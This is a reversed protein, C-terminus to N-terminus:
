FNVGSSPMDSTAGQRNCVDTAVVTTREAARGTRFIPSMHRCTEQSAARASTKSRGLPGLTPADTANAFCAQRECNRPCGRSGARVGFRTGKEDVAHKRTCHFGDRAADACLRPAHTLAFADIVRVRMRKRYVEAVRMRPIRRRCVAPPNRCKQRRQRRCRRPPTAFVRGRCRRLPSTGPDGIHTGTACSPLKSKHLSRSAPM